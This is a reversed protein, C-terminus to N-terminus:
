SLANSSRLCRSLADALETSVIPKHLIESIGAEAMADINMDSSPGTALVIPLRPAVGHFMRALDVGSGSSPADCVLIVDFREPSSRFTAIAQAPVTFGVPEYGLAALLEENWWLGEEDSEAVLVTEGHGLPADPAMQAGDNEPAVPLWVEFRSGQGPKSNVNMAGKHETVIERATALGLGTGSSRGTFFPEFLRRAINEDFGRGTDSVALCVYRGPVLEGHSLQTHTTVDKQEVTVRISGKGDMAQSANTCLNLVVQQLQSAEGSVTIDTPVDSIILQITSPLSARLMSAAEELLARMNVSRLHRDNRRGFALIEDILDRGREAAHRIEGIHEATKSGPVLQSGVMESYGLIAGIINNFNHAIGSALSGIMQMRRSQELRTALRARDRELFERELANAIADGALRMVPAPFAVHWAPRFSDFGMIGQVRGPRVLRVCAWGGVGAAEFIAKAKGIPLAAVNQVSVLGLTSLKRGIAVLPTANGSSAVALTDRGGAEPRAAIALAEQPWGPPYASGDASWTIVRTPTEDLVVYGRDAAITRCIEGLVQKLRSDTEDIPYNILRTSNEAILHEFNARQRLALARARLQLGLHILVALLLLSAIYLLLRFHEATAETAARHSAFLRRTADFAQGTPVALLARLTKDVSPLLDHLLRAHALLAKSAENEQGSASLAAAFRDTQALLGQASEPSTDRTLRLIEAALAGTSLALNPASGGITADISLHGVYSLSNQLLANSSKFTEALAEEQGAALALRDVPAVDLGQRVADARLRHVADNMAASAAVLADYNRLLGARAQLVDRHLTAQALAFDDLARLTAANAAADTVVSRVLLWTLLGLLLVVGVAAPWLKM